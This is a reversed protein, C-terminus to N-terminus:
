NKPLNIPIRLEVEADQPNDNLLAEVIFRDDRYLDPHQPLVKNFFHRILVDFLQRSPGGKGAMILYDGAPIRRTELKLVPTVTKSGAFYTLTEYSTITQQPFAKVAYNGIMTM